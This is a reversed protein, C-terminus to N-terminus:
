KKDIKLYSEIKDIYNKIKEEEVIEKPAENEELLKLVNDYTKFLSREEPRSVILDFRLNEEEAKIKFTELKGKWTCAKDTISEKRQLDFGVPTILNVTGNAWAYKFTESLYPTEVTYNRKIEKTYSLNATKLGEEVKNLIYQEDKHERPRASDYVSLYQEYYYELIQKRNEYTGKKIEAFYLATSDETLFYNGIHSKLGSDPFLDSDGEAKRTLKQAQKDFAKLYNRLIKTSFDEYLKSIRQLYHPYLFELRSETPFWFLIGVNFEEGLLYSHRYRLLSYQFPQKNM